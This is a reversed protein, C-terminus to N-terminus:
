LTSKTRFIRAFVLRSYVAAGFCVLSCRGGVEKDLDFYDYYQPIRPHDIAKLIQAEREFLKLEEWRMQPNFALLKIVVARENDLDKALWTQHGAATRGLRRQLQYSFLLQQEQFVM